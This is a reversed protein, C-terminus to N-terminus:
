DKLMIAIRRRARNTVKLTVRNSAGMAFRTELEREIRFDGAQESRFYDVVALAILGVDYILAAFLIRRDAWGLSLVAFGAGLM